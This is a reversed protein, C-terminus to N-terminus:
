TMINRCIIDLSVKMDVILAFKRYYNNKSRNRLAYTYIKDKNGLM